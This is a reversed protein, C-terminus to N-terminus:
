TNVIRVGRPLSELFVRGYRATAIRSDLVVVRGTDTQSRILRGFGQKFRIVARPLSEEMFPNGGRAKIRELRAQTLPRDPPDFPLKTIIVCRLADGRVDVGQWFSAAGLLVSRRNERFARLMHGRGGGGVGGAGEVQTLLPMARNALPSELRQAVASLTKFSTFLVFAGGDTEDVHHLIAHALSSEYSPRPSDANPMRSEANTPFPPPPSEEPPVQSFEDFTVSESRSRPRTPTSAPSDVGTEIYLTAQKAFDFPSGLQMALTGEADCGLRGMAHAFATEAREPHEDPTVARTALTASTLVISRSGDFLRDRLIPGVEIPACALEIRRRGHRTAGLEVWYVSDPVEQEVYHKAALAVAEARRAYANLEFKDAETRVLERLGKLRLALDAMAPSLINEVQRPGMIRGQPARGSEVLREWQEFFLRSADGAQLTLNIARQIAEPERGALPSNALQGLFGKRRRPEYLTRLLHNIRGETLSLGLHESAVDEVTHAEDLVVHQHPPLIGFQGSSTPTSSTEEVGVENGGVLGASLSRLALDAFFLAHNCVLLNGTEAKRRAEQYFCAEYHPCKRGMCNDTDSQVHTWVEPRTLQPLTALTGDRTDLAWKEIQELQARAEMDVLLAEARESALQLRRISLYNSRGKVLVPKLPHLKRDPFKDRLWPELAAALMPVDKEMLQEQLSITHTSVVAKEGRLVIRLIAPILYAFSKGVGTGAEVMLTRRGAAGGGSGGGGVGEGAGTADFCDWAARAMAIQQPRSEYDSARAESGPAAAARLSRAIPGDSSLIQDILERM